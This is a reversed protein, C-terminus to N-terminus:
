RVMKKRLNLEVFFSEKPLSEAFLLMAPIDETVYLLIVGGNVNRDTRFIVLIM